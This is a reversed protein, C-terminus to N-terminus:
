WKKTYIPHPFPNGDIEAVYQNACTDTDSFYVMAEYFVENYSISVFGQKLFPCDLQSLLLQDGAVVSTYRVGDRSTGEIKGDIEFRDFPTHYVSTGDKIRLFSQEMSFSHIGSSDIFIQYVTDAVVSFLDNGDTRGLYQMFMSDVRLTDKDYTFGSFIFRYNAATTFFGQKTTVKIVGARWHGYGDDTGWSPYRIFLTDDAGGNYSVNAGDITNQGDALLLSDSISKFYTNLLLVITQQGTVYDNTADIERNYSIYTNNDKCATFLLGFALFILLAPISIKKSMM